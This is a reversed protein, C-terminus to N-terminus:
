ARAGKGGRVKPWNMGYTWSLKGDDHSGYAHPPLTCVHTHWVAGCRLAKAKGATDTETSIAKTAISFVIATSSM